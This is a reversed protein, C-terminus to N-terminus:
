FGLYRWMRATDKMQGSLQKVLQIEQTGYSANGKLIIRMWRRLEYYPQLVRKGELYPYQMCLYQYPMWIKYLLYGMGGNLNASKVKVENRKNGFVGGYLIFDEFLLTNEDAAADGFWCESLLAAADGFRKLGGKQLLEERRPNPACLHDLLWLDIFPRIGCGGREIHKAMHALHYYYFMEDPMKYECDSVPVATKWVDDLLKEAKGIRGGEILSHHIEVSAGESLRFSTDHPTENLLEFGKSDKLLATIRAHHEKPVLIDLDASTRLWPKPYFPRLVAGKLLIFPIEEQRLIDVCRKQARIQRLYRMQAMYYQEKWQVHDPDNESIGHKFLYDTVLAAVDHRKANRFVEERVNDTLDRWHFGPQYGSDIEARLMAILCREGDNM